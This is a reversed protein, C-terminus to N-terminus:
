LTIRRRASGGEVKEADEPMSFGRAFFRESGESRLVVRLRDSTYEAIWLSWVEQLADGGDRGGTLATPEVALEPVGDHKVHVELTEPPSVYPRAPPKPGERLAEELPHVEPSRSGSM